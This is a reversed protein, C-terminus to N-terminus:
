ARVEQASQLYRLRGARAKASKLETKVNEREIRASIEAKFEGLMPVFARHFVLVAARQDLIPYYRILARAAASIGHHELVTLIPRYVDKPFKPVRTESPLAGGKVSDPM